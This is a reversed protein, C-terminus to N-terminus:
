DNHKVYNTRRIMELVEINKINDYNENIYKRIYPIMEKYVNCMFGSPKSVDGGLLSDNNCGGQCFSYYDCKEYCNNRRTIAQKLLKAFNESNFADKLENIDKINGLCYDETYSRGCPYMYGDHNISVWKSLCGCQSCEHGKNTIAILVLNFIPDFTNLPKEDNIWKVFLPKLMDTYEKYDILYEEFEKASGSKFVPNMKLHVKNKKAFDYYEDIKDINAKTIVGLLNVKYGKSKLRLVNDTVEKTKDRLDNLSGPGDFSVAPMIGNKEFLDCFKENLFFGNTQVGMRLDLGDRKYKNIIDMAKEFFDYGMLLPEGGHFILEVSNYCSFSKKVIEEFLEISMKGHEYHTDAHYCYKCRFNCESTPKLIITIKKM